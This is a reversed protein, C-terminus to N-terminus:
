PYKSARDYEAAMREFDPSTQQESMETSGGQPDDHATACQNPAHCPQLRSTQAIGPQAGRKM